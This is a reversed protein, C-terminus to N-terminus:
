NQHLPTNIPEPGINLILNATVANLYDEVSYEPYTGIFVMLPKNSTISSGSMLFPNMTMQLSEAANLKQSFNTPQNKTIEHQQLFYPLTIENQMQTPQYSHMTVPNQSQTQQYSQTSAPNQMHLPQDSQIDTPNQPYIKINQSAQTQRPKQARYEHTYPAFIDPQYYDDDDSLLYNTYYPTQQKNRKQQFFSYNETQDHSSHSYDHINVSNTSTIPFNSKQSFLHNQTSKQPPHTTQSPKVYNYNHDAFNIRTFM